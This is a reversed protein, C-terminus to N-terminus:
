TRVKRILKVHQYKKEACPGGHSRICRLEIHCPAWGTSRGVNFRRKEGYTTIVEVRFGELGKLQPTLNEDTRLKEKELPTLKAWIEQTM